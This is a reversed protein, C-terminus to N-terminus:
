FRIRHLSVPRYWATPLHRVLDISGDLHRNEIDYGRRQMAQALHPNRTSGIIRGYDLEVAAQEIGAVITSFVGKGRHPPQVYAHSFVITEGPDHPNDLFGYGVYIGTGVDEAMVFAKRFTANALTLNAQTQEVLSEPAGDERLHASRLNVLSNFARKYAQTTPNQGFFILKSYAEKNSM